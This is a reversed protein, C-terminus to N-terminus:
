YNFNLGLQVIWGYYQQDTPLQGGSYVNAGAEYGPHVFYYQDSHNTLNTANAYVSFYKNIRQKLSLDLLFVNGYYSNQLNFRTDVSELVSGQLQASFRASFGKYDWGLVANYIAKPQNLLPGETTQYRLTDVPRSFTGGTYFGFWPYWENSSMVTYNLDLVVGSLVGPLYWFRTQWSFELGRLYADNAENVPIGATTNMASTSKVYSTDFYDLSPLRNLVATPAETIVHLNGLSVFPMYSVGYVLNSIDKYFGDVTFLGMYTDRYSVGVDYNWATAESLFPNNLASVYGVNLEVLPSIQNFSPLSASKYAAGRIQIRDNDTKYILNVSPFWNHINRKVTVLAPAKGALGNQNAGNLDMHYASIRTADQQYRAGGVVTLSRGINVTAMGYGASTFEKDIYDQNYDAPGNQWFASPYTTFFLDQMTVLAPASFGPGVPYGLISTRTYDPNVFPYAVVGMQQSVTTGHLSPILNVLAARNGAGAGWQIYPYIQTAESTRNRYKYDGGIKLGLSVDNSVSVPVEWDAKGEYDNDLNKAQAMSMAQLLTNPNNPNLVGMDNLLPLPKAYIMQSISPGSVSTEGITFSQNNPQYSNATTYALTIPLRTEGLNFLASLITTGENTKIKNVNIYDNFSGITGFNSANQFQTIADVKQTYLNFLKLNVLDSKYDLVLSAGYVQRNVNNDTLTASNTTIYFLSSSSGASHTPGSYGISAEDYPLQLRQYSGKLMVGFKGNLYRNSLGLSLDYNNYTNRVHNYGGDGSAEVHLGNPATALGLNATGGLEDPNMDPTLTKYLQVSSILNNGMLSLDISRDGSGQPAMSVGEVTVRNYQPSMGRIVLAYGQGAYRQLSVGPLRGISEALTIDPLQKMKEASVFNAIKNSALQQNITQLQAVAQATVVVTKGKVANPELYITVRSTKSSNVYVRKNTSSYGVYSIILTQEGEPANGIVFNGNLDTAAGVSTGKVLVNAGPLARKTEKDLVSGQITGSGAALARTASLLVIGGLLLASMNLIRYFKASMANERNKSCIWDILFKELAEYELMKLKGIRVM